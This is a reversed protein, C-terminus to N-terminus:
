KLQKFIHTVVDATWGNGLLSKAQSDNLSSTFGDPLGQLREMENRTFRRIQGNLDYVGIDCSTDLCSSRGKIVRGRRTKSTPFSINIGDGPEAIAYGKKVPQAVRIGDRGLSILDKSADSFSNCVKIGGIVEYDELEVDQIIDTLKNGNYEPQKVEFNTWYTRPRNQPVLLGSNIKIPEVGLYDTIVEEWEKKMDVNELMFKLDPNQQKLHKLIDVYEFFLKSQPHNFNLGGGQRSFGQCPSGGILIDIKPLEWERWKTVDGLQQVDPFNIATNDIAHKEIESSFYNDVEIGAQILSFRGVSGGDFLSSVNM